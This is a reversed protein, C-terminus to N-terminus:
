LSAAESDEVDIGNASAPRPHRNTAQAPGETASGVRGRASRELFDLVSHLSDNSVPVDPLDPLGNIAVSQRSYAPDSSVEPGFWDPPQFSEADQEAEFELEAWALAGPTTVCNISIEHSGLKLRARNYGITGASVDVLFAGQRGSVEAREEDLEGGPGTTLLVLHCTGGEFLVYSQRTESPSFHAEIVPESGRDRRVLRAISSALLFRRTVTM